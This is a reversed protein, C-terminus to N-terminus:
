GARRWAAHFENWRVAYLPDDMAARWRARAVVWGSYLILCAIAAAIAIPLRRPGSKREPAQAADVVQILTGDRSEDVRALEYQKALLDFLTEQYKFERYKGIYDPTGASTSESQEAVHIRDGLARAKATLAQVEPSSDAMSQRVTELQVETGTLEARLRAYSDAASRPEAKLAGESIGSSQLVTQATILRAKTDQMQKEFFMRRRQAETIALTATTARLEDIYDNAMAAARVPSTDTVTVTILGDKKGASVIALKKLRERANFRLKAEYVDMLRFKDIIRDSVTTSQMLAVYQDAQTHQAAGLGALAGLSALASSAGGQQQPVIFSSQATFTPTVLFTAALALAGGAFTVVVISRWRRALPTALDLLDVGDDPLATSAATDHIDTESTM